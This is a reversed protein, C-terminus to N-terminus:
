GTVFLPASAWKKAAEHRGIPYTWVEVVARSLYQGLDPTGLGSMTCGSSNLGSGFTCANVTTWTWPIMPGGVTLQRFKVPVVIRFLYIGPALSDFLISGELTGDANQRVM